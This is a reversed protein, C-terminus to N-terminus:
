DALPFAVFVNFPGYDSIELEYTLLFCTNINEKMTPEVDGISVPLELKMHEADEFGPIDSCGSRFITAFEGILLNGVERIADEIYGIDTAGGTKCLEMIRPKPFMVTSGGLTFLGQRDLLVLFSCDDAGACIVKNIAMFQGCREKLASVAAVETGAPKMRIDQGFMMRFGECFKQISNTSLSLLRKQDTDTLTPM